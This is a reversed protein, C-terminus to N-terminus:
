KSAKELAKGLTAAKERDEPRPSTELRQKLRLLVGELDRFQRSLREQKLKADLLAAQIEADSLKKVDDKSDTSSKPEVKPVVPNDARAIMVLAMATALLGALIRRLM